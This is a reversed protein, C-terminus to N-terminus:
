RRGSRGRRPSRCSRPGRGPLRRVTAPRSAPNEVGARRGIATERAQGVTRKGAEVLAPAHMGVFADGEGPGCEFPESIALFAEARLLPVAVGARLVGRPVRGRGCSWVIQM